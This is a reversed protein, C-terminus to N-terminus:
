NRCRALRCLRGVNTLQTPFNSQVDIDLVDVGQHTEHVGGRSVQLEGALQVRQHESQALAQTPTLTAQCSKMLHLYSTM